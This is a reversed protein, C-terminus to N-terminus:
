FNFGVVLKLNIYLFYDHKMEEKKKANTAQTIENGPSSPFNASHIDFMQFFQMLNGTGVAHIKGSIITKFTGNM